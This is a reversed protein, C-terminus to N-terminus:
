MGIGPAQAPYDSNANVDREIWISVTRNLYGCEDTTRSMDTFLTEAHSRVEATLALWDPL